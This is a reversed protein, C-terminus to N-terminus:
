LCLAPIVKILFICPVASDTSEFKPYITSSARSVAGHLDGHYANCLYKMANLAFPFQGANRTYEDPGAAAIQPTPIAVGGVGRPLGLSIGPAEALDALLNAMPFAAM